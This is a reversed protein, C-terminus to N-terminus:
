SLDQPLARRKTDSLTVASVNYPNITFGGVSGDQASIEQFPSEPRIHQSEDYKYQSGITSLNM